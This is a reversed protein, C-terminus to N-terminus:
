RSQNACDSAASALRFTLSECIMSRSCSVRSFTANTASNERPLDSSILAIKKACYPWRTTGDDAPRVVIHGVSSSYSADIGTPMRSSGMSVRSIGTGNASSRM